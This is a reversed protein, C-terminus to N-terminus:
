GGIGARLVLCLGLAASVARIKGQRLAVLAQARSLLLIEMEELDGSRPSAVCRAGTALFFHARGCGYNSNCIFSGLSKWHAARYGTEELLERRAAVLPREGRVVLGGPLFLAVAGLGHKYQREFLIRGDRACAVIVAYEPMEVRHYDPVRRGNPLRVDQLSVRIWPAARYVTRERLVKWPHLPSRKM